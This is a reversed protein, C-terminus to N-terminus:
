DTALVFFFNVFLKFSGPCNPDNSTTIIRYLYVSNFRFLNGKKCTGGSEVYKNNSDCICNKSCISGAGGNGATCETNTSCANGLDIATVVICFYLQSQVAASLVYRRVHAGLMSEFWGTYGSIPRRQRSSFVNCGQNDFVCVNDSLDARNGPIFCVNTDSLM